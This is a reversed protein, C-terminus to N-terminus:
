DMWDAMRLRWQVLLPDAKEVRSRKGLTLGLHFSQLIALLPHVLRMRTHNSAVWSQAMLGASISKRQTTM